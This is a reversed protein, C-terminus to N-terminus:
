DGEWAGFEKPQWEMGPYSTSSMVIEEDSSDGGEKRETQEKGGFESGVQVPAAAGGVAPPSASIGHEIEM